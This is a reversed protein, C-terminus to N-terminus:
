NYNRSSGAKAKTCPKVRAVVRSPQKPQAFIEMSRPLAEEEAIALRQGIGFSEVEYSHGTWNFWVNTDCAICFLPLVVSSFSGEVAVGYILKDGLPVVWNLQTPPKAHVAVVGFQTKNAIRKVVAAVVDPRGDHDVDAVKWPLLPADKKEVSDDPLDAVRNLLHVGPLQRLAGVLLAPPKSQAFAFNAFLILFSATRM